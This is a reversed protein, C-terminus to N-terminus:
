HRKFVIPVMMRIRVSQGRQEAPVWSMEANLKNMVRLAEEVFVEQGTTNKAIEINEMKGSQNIIFRVIVKASIPVTQDLTCAPYDSNTHIYKALVSLACKAEEEYTGLAQCSDVKLIPMQEVIVFTNAPDQAQAFVPLGLLAFCILTVIKKM